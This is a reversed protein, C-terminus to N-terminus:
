EKFKELAIEFVDNEKAIYTEPFVSRAEHLLPNLDKYRSSFHGIILKKVKAQKAIEAAQITTSHGTQKAMKMFNQTFTAEHYLLDVDKVIDAVKKSYETDSCFAYSRPTYPKYTLKENSIISGDECMLDYGKKIKTIEALTLKYRGIMEKRINLEPVKERFLYGCCPVRHKLPITEISINKDEYILKQQRVNVAHFIIEYKFESGFYKLFDNLIYELMSFGYINLERTRNYLSLTSLLGYLGFIHDGHLHTIFIHNLRAFNINNRMMQIQTGEGCDILFLREHINIAHATQFRNTTPLASSSGLITVKFKM